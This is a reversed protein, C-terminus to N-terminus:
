NTWTVSEKRPSKQKIIKTNFQKGFKNTWGNKVWFTKRYGFM